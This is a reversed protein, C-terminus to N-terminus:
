GHLPVEQDTTAREASANANVIDMGNILIKECERCLSIAVPGEMLADETGPKARFSWGAIVIDADGHVCLMCKAPIATPTLRDSM